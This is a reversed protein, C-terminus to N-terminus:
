LVAPTVFVPVGSEIQIKNNHYNETNVAKLNHNVYLFFPLRIKEVLVSGVVCCSSVRTQFSNIILQM